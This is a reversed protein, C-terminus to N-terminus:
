TKDKKERSKALWRLAHAKSLVMVAPGPNDAQFHEILMLLKDEDVKWMSIDSPLLNKADSVFDARIVEKPQGHTSILFDRVAGYDSSDLAFYLYGDIKHNTFMVGNSVSWQHFKQDLKVCLEDYSKAILFGCYYGQKEPNFDSRSSGMPPPLTAGCVFFASFLILAKMFTIKFKM